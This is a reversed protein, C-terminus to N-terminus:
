ATKKRFLLWRNKSFRTKILVYKGKLKRGRLEAIIESAKMKEPVYKGSDWIKVTGAGYLGEPIKGSFNAYELPHDETQIALKKEGAKEPMGKPVVWSKMVGAVELRFDYHLQRARHEQVVFVPNGRRQAKGTATKPEPTESFVRRKKYLELAM